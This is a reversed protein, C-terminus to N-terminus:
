TYMNEGSVRMPHIKLYELLCHYNYNHTERMSENYAEAIGEFSAWCHHSCIVDHISM